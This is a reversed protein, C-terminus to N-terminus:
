SCYFPSTPSYRQAIDNDDNDDVEEEESDDSDRNWARSRKRSPEDDEDNDDEDDDDDDSYDNDNYWKFMTEHDIAFSYQLPHMHDEKNITIKNLYIHIILSYFSQDGRSVFQFDISLLDKINIEAYHSEVYAQRLDAM